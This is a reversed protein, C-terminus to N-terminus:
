RSTRATGRLIRGILSTSWRLHSGGEQLSSEKKGYRWGPARFRTFTPTRLLCIRHVDACHLVRGSVPAVPCHTSGLYAMAVLMKPFRPIVMGDQIGLTQEVFGRPTVDPNALLWPAHLTKM